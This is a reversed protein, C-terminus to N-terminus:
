RQLSHRGLEEEGAYDKREGEGGGGDVKSAVGNSYSRGVKGEGPSSIIMHLANDYLPFIKMTFYLIMLNM